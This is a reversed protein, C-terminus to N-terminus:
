LFQGCAFLLKKELRGTSGDFFGGDGVPESLSSQQTVGPECRIRFRRPLAASIGLAGASPQECRVRMEGRRDDHSEAGHDCMCSINTM